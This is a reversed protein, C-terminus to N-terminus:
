VLVASGTINQYSYILSFNYMERTKGIKDENVISNQKAAMKEFWIQCYVYVLLPLKTKFAISLFSPYEYSITTKALQSTYIVM